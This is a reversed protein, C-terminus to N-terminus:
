TGGSSGYPSAVNRAAKTRSRLTRQPMNNPKQVPTPPPAPPLHSADHLSKYTTLEKQKEDLTVTLAKVKNRLSDIIDKSISPVENALEDLEYESLNEYEDHGDNGLQVHALYEHNYNSYIPKTPTETSTETSTENSTETSTEVDVKEAAMPTLRDDCKLFSALRDGLEKNAATTRELEEEKTKLYLSMGDREIQLEIIQANAEQLECAQKALKSGSEAITMVANLRNAEMKVDEMKMKMDRQSKLEAIETAAQTAHAELANVTAMKETIQSNLGAITEKADNLSQEFSQHIKLTDAKAQSNLTQLAQLYQIVHTITPYVQQNCLGIRYEYSSADRLHGINRNLGQMMYLMDHVYVNPDQVKEQLVNM